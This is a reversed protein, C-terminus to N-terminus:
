EQGKITVTIWKETALVTCGYIGGVDPDNIALQIDYTGTPLDDALINIHFKGMGKANTTFTELWFWVGAASMIFDGDYNNLNRVWVAYDHKELLGEVNGQIIFTVKGMPDVFIVEGQSPESPLVNDSSCDSAPYLPAPQNNVWHGETAFITPMILLALGIVLLLTLIPFLFKKM